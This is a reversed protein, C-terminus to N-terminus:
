KNTRARSKKIENICKKQFDSMQEWEEVPGAKGQLYSDLWVSWAKSELGLKGDWAEQISRYADTAEQPADSNLEASIYGYQEVPVHVEYKM